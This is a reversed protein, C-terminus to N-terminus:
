MSEAPLGVDFYDGEVRAQRRYRVMELDAEKLEEEEKLVVLQGGMLDGQLRECEKGFAGHRTGQLPHQRPLTSVRRRARAALRRVAHATGRRCKLRWLTPFDDGCDPCLFEGGSSASLSGREDAGDAERRLTDGDVAMARALARGDRQRRPKHGSSTSSPHLYGICVRWTKWRQPDGRRRGVAAHGLSVATGVQRGARCLLAEYVRARGGIQRGETGEADSRQVEM